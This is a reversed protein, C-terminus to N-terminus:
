TKMQKYDDSHPLTAVLPKTRLRSKRNTQQILKGSWATRKQLTQSIPSEQFLYPRGLELPALLLRYTPTTIAEPWRLPRFCHSM